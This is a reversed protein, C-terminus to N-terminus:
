FQFYIFESMEKPAYVYIAYVVATYIAYRTFRSKVAGVDLAHEKDRQIWEIIIVALCYFLVPTDHLGIFHFLTPSLMQSLFGAAQVM